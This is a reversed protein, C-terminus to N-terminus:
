GGIELVARREGEYINFFILLLTALIHYQIFSTKNSKLPLPIFYFLYLKSFLDQQTHTETIKGYFRNRYVVAEAKYIVWIILNTGSTQTQTQNKQKTNEKSIYNFIANVFILYVAILSATILLKNKNM